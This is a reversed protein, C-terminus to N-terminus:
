FLKKLSLFNIPYPEWQNSKTHDYEVILWTKQMAFYNELTKILVEKNKVFHFANAMLIGNLEQFQLKDIVFDAKQFSVSVNNGM